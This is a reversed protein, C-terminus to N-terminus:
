WRWRGGKYALQKTDKRQPAWFWVSHELYSGVLVSFPLAIEDKVQKSINHRICGLTHKARKAALACQQHMSLKGVALLELNGRMGWDTCVNM